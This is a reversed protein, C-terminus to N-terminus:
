LTQTCLYICFYIPIAPRTKIPAEPAATAVMGVAARRRPLATTMLAPSQTISKNYHANFASQKHSLADTEKKL